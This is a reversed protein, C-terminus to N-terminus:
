SDYNEKVLSADINCALRDKVLKRRKTVRGSEKDLVIPVEESDGESDADNPDDEVLVPPPNFNPTGFAACM